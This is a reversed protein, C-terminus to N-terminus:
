NYYIAFVQFGGTCADGYDGCLVLFVLILLVDRHMLPARIFNSKSLNEVSEMICKM